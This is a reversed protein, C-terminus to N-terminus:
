LRLGRVHDRGNGFPVVDVRLRQTQVFTLAEETGGSAVAVGTEIGILIEFAEFDDQLEGTLQPDVERADFDNQIHALFHFFHLPLHLLKDALQVGFESGIVPGDIRGGSGREDRNDSSALRAEVLPSSISVGTDGTVQEAELPRALWVPKLVDASVPATWVFAESSM